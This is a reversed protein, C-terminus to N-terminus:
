SRRDAARCEAPPAHVRYLVGDSVREVITLRLGGGLDTDPHTSREYWAFFVPGDCAADGLVDVTPPILSASPYL